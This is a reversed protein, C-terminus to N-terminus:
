VGLSSPFVLALSLGACRLCPEMVTIRPGLWAARSYHGRNVRVGVETAFTCEALLTPVPKVVKTRVEQTRSNEPFVRQYQATRQAPAVLIYINLNAKHLILFQTRQDWKTM